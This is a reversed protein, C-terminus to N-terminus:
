GPPAGADPEGGQAAAHQQELYRNVNAIGLLDRAMSTVLRCPWAVDCAPCYLYTTGTRRASLHATLARGGDSSEAKAALGLDYEFRVVLRMWVEVPVPRARQRPM